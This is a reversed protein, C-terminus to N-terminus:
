QGLEAPVAAAEALRSASEPDHSPLYVLNRVSALERIRRLTNAAAAEGGGLSSVGDVIGAHLNAETYSTDGAFFVIRNGLEVAVSMHGRTHGPTPLLHVDGAETLVHSESFPGFSEPQFTVPTLALWDPWRQPLYGRVKGLLGRADQYESESVLVESEPFHSLGGAHDTHLHTMVVWRVDNPRIGLAEMQPGIEDEPLVQERLGL